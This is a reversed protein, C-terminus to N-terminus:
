NKKHTNFNITGPVRFSLCKKVCVKNEEEEKQKDEGESESIIGRLIGRSHDKGNSTQSDSATSTSPRKIQRRELALLRALELCTQKEAEVHLEAQIRGTKELLLGSPLQSHFEADHESEAPTADVPTSTDEPQLHPDLAEEASTVSAAAAGRGSNPAQDM